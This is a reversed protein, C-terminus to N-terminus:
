EEATFLRGLVPTVRLLPFLEATATGVEVLEPDGESGHLNARSSSAAAFEALEGARARYDLFDSGSVAPLSQGQGFDSWIIALREPEPYPLPKLLVARVVGFTASNAAIAVAITLVAVLAFGPNSRMERLAAKLDGSM